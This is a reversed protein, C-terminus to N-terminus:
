GKNKNNFSEFDQRPMVPMSNPFAMENSSTAFLYTKQYTKKMNDLVLEETQLGISRKAPPQPACKKRRRNNQVSTM